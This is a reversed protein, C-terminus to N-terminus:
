VAAAAQNEGTAPPAEATVEVLQSDKVVAIREQAAAAAKKAASAPTKKTAKKAKQEAKTKAVQAQKAKKEALAVKRNAAILAKDFENLREQLEVVEAEAKEARATAEEVRSRGDGAAQNLCIGMLTDHASTQDQRVFTEPLVTIADSASIRLVTVVPEDHEQVVLCNRKAVNKEDSIAVFVVHEKRRDFVYGLYGKEDSGLDMPNLRELSKVRYQVGLDRIDFGTEGHDGMSLDYLSIIRAPSEFGNPTPSFTIEMTSLRTGQSILVQAPESWQRVLEDHLEAFREEAAQIEAHIKVEQDETEQLIKSTDGSMNQLTQRTIALDSLEGVSGQSMEDLADKQEQMTQFASIVNPRKDKALAMGPVLDIGALSGDDDDVYASEFAQKPCPINNRVGKQHFGVSSTRRNQHRDM